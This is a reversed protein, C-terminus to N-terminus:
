HHLMQINADYKLGPLGSPRDSPFTSPGVPFQGSFSSLICMYLVCTLLMASPPTVPTIVHSMPRLLSYLGVKSVTAYFM